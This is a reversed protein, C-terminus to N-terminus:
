FVGADVADLGGGEEDGGSLQFFKADKRLGCLLDCTAM